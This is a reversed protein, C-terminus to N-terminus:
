EWSRLRLKFNRPFNQWFYKGSRSDLAKGLIFDVESWQALSDPQTWVALFCIGTKILLVVKLVRSVFVANESVHGRYSSNYLSFLTSFAAYSPRGQQLDWRGRLM